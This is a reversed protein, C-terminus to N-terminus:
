NKRKIIKSVHPEYNLITEIRSSLKKIINFQNIINICVFLNVVPIIATIICLICDSISVLSINDKKLDSFFSKFFDISGLILIIIGPIFYFLTIIIFIIQNTM